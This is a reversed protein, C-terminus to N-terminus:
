GRSSSGPTPCGRSCRRRGPSSAGSCIAPLRSASGTPPPWRRPVACDPMPSGARVVPSSSWATPMLNSSPPESTMSGVCRRSASRERIASCSWGSSIAPRGTSGDRASIGGIGDSVVLHGREVAIRLGYGSLVLLGDKPQLPVSSYIQNMTQATGTSQSDSMTFGRSERNRSRSM